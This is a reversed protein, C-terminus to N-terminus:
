MDVWDRLSIGAEELAIALQAPDDARASVTWNIWGNNKDSRDTPSIEGRGSMLQRKMSARYDQVDYSRSRGAIKRDFRVWLIAYKILGPLLPVPDRGRNVLCIWQHWMKSLCEQIGDGRTREPWHKFAKQAARLTRAYALDVFRQQETM